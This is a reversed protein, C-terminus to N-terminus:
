SNLLYLIVFLLQHQADPHYLLETIYQSVSSELIVEKILFIIAKGTGDICHM